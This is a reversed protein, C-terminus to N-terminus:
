PGAPIRVTVPMGEHLLGDPADTLRIHAQFGPVTDGRAEPYIAAIRGEVTRGAAEVAVRGGLPVSSLENQRLPVVVAINHGGGIALVQQGAQVEAGPAASLGAVVGDVPAAVTAPMAGGSQEAAQLRAAAAEVQRRAIAGKEYLSRLKEYERRAAEASNRGSPTAAMKFLPQGAKVAQGEGVYLEAIRGAYGSTVPLALPKAVSGARVIGAPKDAAAAPVAAEQAPLPPAAPAPAFHGRFLAALAIALALAALAAPLYKKRDTM